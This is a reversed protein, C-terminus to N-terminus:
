GGELFQYARCAEHYEEAARAPKASDFISSMVAIGRINMKNLGVVHEPKIGGIAYINSQVNEAILKLEELGRAPVGKKCDTDYVHGYLLWDAGSRSAEWAEEPSHISRGTRLNPFYSKVQQLTLGHGPLQVKNIGTVVAVDVRDNIILKEKKVKAASLRGILRIYENATKTRERIIFYDVFPEVKVIIRALMDVDFRDNTVAILEVGLWRRQLHM